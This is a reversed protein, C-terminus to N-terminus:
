PVALIFFIGSHLVYQLPFDVVATRTHSTRATLELADRTIFAGCPAAAVAFRLDNSGSDLLVFCDKCAHEQLQM